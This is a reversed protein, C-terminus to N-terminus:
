KNPTVYAAQKPDFFWKRSLKNTNEIESNPGYFDASIAQANKLIGDYVFIDSVPSFTGKDQMEYGYAKELPTGVHEYSIMKFVKDMVGDPSIYYFNRFETDKIRYTIVPTSYKSSFLSIFDVQLPRKASSPIPVPISFQNTVGDYIMFYNYNGVYGNEKLIEENKLGLANQEANQLRNITVIADLQNDSNLDAQYLKVEFKENAPIGLMKITRNRAREEMPLNPDDDKGFEPEQIKSQDNQQNSKCSVLLLSIFFTIIFLKKM